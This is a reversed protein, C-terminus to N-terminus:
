RNQGLAKSVALRADHELAVISTGSVYQELVKFLPLIKEMAELLDPAACILNANERQIDLDRLEGSISYDNPIGAVVGSTENESIMSFNAGLEEDYVWTKKM